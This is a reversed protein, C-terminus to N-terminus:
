SAKAGPPPAQLLVLQIALRGAPNTVRAAMMEVPKRNEWFGYFARTERLAAAKLDQPAQDWRDLLFQTRWLFVEADYPAIRYSTRLFGAAAADLGGTRRGAIYALRCWAAPRFPGFGLEARTLREAAALDAKTLPGPGALRALSERGLAQPNSLAGTRWTMDSWLKVTLVALAAWVLCLVVM